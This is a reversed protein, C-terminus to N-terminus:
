ALTEIAAVAAEADFKATALRMIGRFETSNTAWADGGVNSAAVELTKRRFLVGFQSYDGLYFPVKNATTPLVANSVVRVPRGFIRNVTPQTPDPQILPRGTGDMLQDLLDLGDQNTLLTASLSIAPDLAKNLLSKLGAVEKGATLTEASADLTQLLALLLKNETLVGKRAYWGSLYQMLGADNDELLDNSVPVRLAYDEITYSIKSFAPQDDKPITGMEAVKTFGATPHTDIVRFGSPASVEEVTFLDALPNLTRRLTRIQTDMDVPVLFGGDAGSPSGGTETMAARLTPLVAALAANDRRLTARIASCFARTYERSARVDTDDAAQATTLTSAPTPLPDGAGTEELAMLERVRTIEADLPALEAKATDYASIDGADNATTMRAVIDKKKALLALLRKKM